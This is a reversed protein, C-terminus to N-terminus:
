ARKELDADNHSVVENGGKEKAGRLYSSAEELLADCTTDPQAEAVGFSLTLTGLDKGTGRSSFKCKEISGRLSNGVLVAAGLDTEPLAIAFEDGHMRAVIDCGKINRRLLNAIHVLAQDGAQYGFAFNFRKFKDISCMILSLPTEEEVALKLNDELLRNFRRRNILNTLMDSDDHEEIKKIFSRTASINEVISDIKGKLLRNHNEAGECTEVLQHIITHLTEDSADGQSLASVASHIDSSFEGVTGSMQNALGLLGGSDTELCRMASNLHDLPKDDRYCYQDFLGLIFLSTIPHNLALRNDIEETLARDRGELYRYWVVYHEPIAALGHSALEDLTRLAHENKAVLLAIGHLGQM